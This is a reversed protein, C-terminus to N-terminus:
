AITFATVHDAFHMAHLAEYAAPTAAGFAFHPRLADASARRFADIASRLRAIAPALEGDDPIDPAGPIAATLDHSLKGARIFKKAAIPGITSRFLWSRPKPFGSLSYEISQACHVLARSPVWGRTSGVSSASEIRVLEAEVQAFTTM